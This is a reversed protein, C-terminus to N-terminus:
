SFKYRHYSYLYTHFSNIKFVRFIQKLDIIPFISTQPNDPHIKNALHAASQEATGTTMTPTTQM